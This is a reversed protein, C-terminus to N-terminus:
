HDPGQHVLSGVSSRHYTEFMGAKIKNNELWRGNILRNDNSISIFGPICSGVSGIISAFGPIDKDPGDAIEEGRRSALIFYTDVTNVKALV